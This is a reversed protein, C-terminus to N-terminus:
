ADHSLWDIRILEPDFSRGVGSPMITVKVLTSVITRRRDIDFGAWAERAQPGIAARPLTPPLAAALAAELADRDARGKATIRALQDADITGEAFLDAASALRAGVAAIADRAERAADPDGTTFLEAADDRELRRLVVETVLEDVPEQLRRVKHCEGCAYAAKVPKSRQGPKPTWPALRKMRGGCLGCWALGSLLHRAPQGVGPSALRTPDDFLAVLRDHTDRDLIAPHLEADFDGVVRGRHTRLGALSPRRILQRLTAAQWPAGAPSPVQRRNLDAAISRLSEADLVRRAAERIIAAESDVITDRGDQRQYGFGPRATPTGRAARQDSASRQRQAKHEVENASVAALIRAAMRGAPTNLDIESAEVTLFRLRRGEALDIIPELDRPLRYLRDTHWVIVTDVVRDRILEVVREFGPRRKGTTASLDNDEIVDLM